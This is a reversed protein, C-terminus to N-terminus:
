LLYPTPSLSYPVTHEEANHKGDYLTYAIIETSRLYIKWHM